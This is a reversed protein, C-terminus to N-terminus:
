WDSNSSGVDGLMSNILSLEMDSINQHLDKKANEINDRVSSKKHNEYQAFWDESSSGADVTIFDSITYKYKGDKFEIVITFQIPTTMGNQTTVIRTIGKGIIKNDSEFQIVNKASKFTLAFWELTKDHLESSLVSDVVEIGSYMIKGTTSDKQLINEQSSIILSQLVFLLILFNKM